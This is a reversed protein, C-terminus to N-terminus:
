LGLLASWSQGGLLGDVMLGRSDQFKILAAKTGEGYHGSADSGTGYGAAALLLQASKVIPGRDGYRLLPLKIKYTTRSQIANTATVPEPTSGQPTSSAEQYRLVCDWPYNYYSRVAIEQGSGDGARGDYDKSAQVLRGNGVCLAAHNATNILVDGRRLGAGTALNVGATVDKFGCRLFAPRMNGTYTAGAAKVGLGAREFADIILHGCDYGGTSKGWGGWKYGISNDAAIQEALKVATEMKSM